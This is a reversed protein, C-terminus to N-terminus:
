RHIAADFRRALAIIVASLLLIGVLLYVVWNPDGAYASWYAKAPWFPPFLGFVIQAPGPVFWAAPILLGAVGLAKLLAFGQVKNASFLVLVLTTASASLSAGLAILVLSIPSVLALGIGVFQAIIIVFALVAPFLLRHALYHSVPMPTVMLATLTDHDREDITIFGIASGALLPATYFVLYGILMPYYATLDLGAQSRSAVGAALMPLAFRLVLAIVVAYIMLGILFSDRRILRADNRTLASLTKVLQM